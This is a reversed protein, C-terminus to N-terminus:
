PLPSATFRASCSSILRRWGRRGVSVSKASISRLSISTAIVRPSLSPHRKVGRGSRGSLMSRSQKETTTVSPTSRCFETSVLHMGRVRLKPSGKGDSQFAMPLIFGVYDAFQAAHNLFELALWARYGFPPNGIVVVPLDSPTPKWSLFDAEMVGPAQPMIDLAVTRGEPLLSSFAGRGASPELFTVAEPDAGDARMFNTLREYCLQAIDSRTFFQDLPVSDIDVWKPIARNHRWQANRRRIASRHASTLTM